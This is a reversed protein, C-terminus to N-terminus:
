ERGLNRTRWVSIVMRIPFLVGAVISGVAFLLMEGRVYGIMSQTMEYSLSGVLTEPGNEDLFTQFHNLEQILLFVLPMCLFLLVIKIRGKGALWTHPLLFIYRSLTIFVVIFILNIGFFPFEPAWYRIPLLVVAAILATVIWWMIELRLVMRMRESGM